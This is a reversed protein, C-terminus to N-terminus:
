WTLMGHMKKYNKYATYLTTKLSKEAALKETELELASKKMWKPKEKKGGQFASALEGFGKFVALFPDLVNKGQPTGTKKPIEDEPFKEGSERLYDKLEDGLAEMAAKVSENVESLLEMDEAERMRVYNKIEPDSWVYGRLVMDFKGTHAPGRQYGEQTYSLAPRTRYKINLLICPHVVRKPNESTCLVEIEIVAGEFATILEATNLNKESLQLKRINRLYPKIWGMYLKITEYHQRLYKLTFSRRTKLEKYTRIKWMYYQTLKRGLVEKVKKNFGEMKDIRKDLSEIITKVKADYEASTKWEGAGKDDARVRFFLDPLVTFGVTQALGYVSAANKTGGEVQDIWVGKLTIDSGVGEDDNKRTFSNNYYGLREDIIRLERVIQFLAKTMESIGKLYQGAKDQQLGLRQESVGFFASQESAAFVDAIKYFKNFGWDYRLEDMMWFYADEIYQNISELVLRYRYIPSPFGTKEKIHLHMEAEEEGEGKENVFYYKKLLSEETM